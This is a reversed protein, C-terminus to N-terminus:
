WPRIKDWKDEKWGFQGLLPVFAVATITEHDHKEGRRYWRELVQSYRGGVPLVLRGGEDLQDLLPKPVSPAAATVIIAQYPAGDPMGQTGDGTHVHVNDYNLSKLIEAAQNALPKHREITHVEAALFSLIAAQYGSGTGIELVKEDGKLELL